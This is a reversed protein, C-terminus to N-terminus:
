AVLRIDQIHGVALTGEKWLAAIWLLADPNTGVVAGRPFIPLTSESLDNQEAQYGDSITLKLKIEPM